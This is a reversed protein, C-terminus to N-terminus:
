SEGRAMANVGAITLEAYIRTEAIAGELTLGDYAFKRVVNFHMAFATEAALEVNANAHVVGAAKGAAIIDALLKFARTLVSRARAEAEASRVWSYAQSERVKAIHRLDYTLAPLFAAVIREVVNEPAIEGVRAEAEAVHKRLDELIIEELLEEKGTFGTFVSGVAVGAADAIMRVTVQQYGHAEFLTRAAQLVALRTQEKQRQRIPQLDNVGEPEPTFRRANM